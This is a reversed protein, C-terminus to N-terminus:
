VVEFINTFAIRCLLFDNGFLYDNRYYCVSRKYTYLYTNSKSNEYSTVISFGASRYALFVFLGWLTYRVMTGTNEM